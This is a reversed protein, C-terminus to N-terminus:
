IVNEWGKIKNAQSETWNVCGSKDRFDSPKRHSRTLNASHRIDIYPVESKFVGYLSKDRGGPEYSSGAGKDEIEALRARYFDILHTRYAVLGSVQNADWHAAFGDPWVKYWNQNYYFLDKREPTFDFHSPPYLCDHEAFFVIDTEMSELGILIQTYMTIKGRQLPLHINHGMKMPKLSVSTIPIDKSVARLNKQVKHAIKLALQNDTFFLIGKTPQSLKVKKLKDLDKQEWRAEKDGVQQLPEWFRDLLWSLPKVQKDWKNNLFIDQSIKRARHQDNGSMPYPFSFGHQTRFLHGYWTDRNCMVRGGSLWTKIAVESGQQGWGGWSEDCLKISWYKERTCMFCSGQLSMTEVLGTKNQTNRLEPFYKFQLNKNFRYASNQPNTKPNWVLTKKFSQPDNACEENRCQKPDPGQYEKMGCNNCEWDFVHLNRMVPVLTMDEEAGELMKVDFGEDVACHADLKMVWKSKSAKVGLNQAARQGISEALHIIKVDKYDKIETWYGDLVVIIETNGRKNKIIDDITNSLWEEERAPIIVSLDYM